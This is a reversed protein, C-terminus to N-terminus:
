GNGAAESPGDQIYVNDLGLRIAIRVAREYEAASLKRHLQPLRLGLGKGSKASESFGPAEYAPFYQGM